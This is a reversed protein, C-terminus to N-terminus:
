CVFFMRSFMGLKVDKNQLRLEILIDEIYLAFIFPSLVVGQRVGATVQFCSSISEGWKVQMYSKTYWSLLVNIVEKPFKRSMLKSFLAYYSVRDFAKSIDLASVTVTCGNKTFYDIASKVTFLADSCGVGNKFGFQLNDTVLCSSFKSLLAYEFLKSVTSSLSIGRYNDCMSVDSTADKLLPIILGKGFDDPVVGYSLMCNFLLKLLMILCPHAYTLHEASIKDLGVSKGRKLKSLAVDVDSVTFFSDQSLSISYDNFTRLFIEKHKAHEIHNNPICTQSFFTKFKNAIDENGSCGEVFKPLRDNKGLKSKWSRWFSNMDKIILSEYLSETFQM